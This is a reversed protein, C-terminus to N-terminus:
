PVLSLVICGRSVLCPCGGSAIKEALPEMYWLRSSPLPELQVAGAPSAAWRGEFISALDGACQKAVAGNLSIMWVLVYREDWRLEFCIVLSVIRDQALMPGVNQGDACVRVISATLAVTAVCPMKPSLAVLPVPGETRM